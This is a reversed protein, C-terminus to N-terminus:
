QNIENMQDIITFNSLLYYKHMFLKGSSIKNQTTISQVVGNDIGMGERAKLSRTWKLSLPFNVNKM